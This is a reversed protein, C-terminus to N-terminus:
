KSISLTSGGAQHSQKRAYQNGKPAGGKKPVYHTYWHVIENVDWLPGRKRGSGKYTGPHAIVCGIPEPFGNRERRKHWMYIQNTSVMLLHAAQSMNAVSTPGLNM